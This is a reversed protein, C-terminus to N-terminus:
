RQINLRPSFSIKFFCFFLYPHCNTLSYHLLTTLIVYFTLKLIFLGILSFAMEGIHDPHYCTHASIIFSPVSNHWFTHFNDSISNNLFYGLILKFSGRESGGMGILIVQADFSFLLQLENLYM